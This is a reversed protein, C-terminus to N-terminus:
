RLSREATITLVSNEYTHSLTFEGEYAIRLLGLKSETQTPNAMLEQMRALYLSRPDKSSTIRELAEALGRAREASRVGNTSIVRVTEDGIVLQLSGAASQEVPEGYKVVNEALESAVMTVEERLAEDREKLGSNVM